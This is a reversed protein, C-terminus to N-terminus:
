WCLQALFRTQSSQSCLANLLPSWRDSSRLLVATSDLLAVVILVFTLVVILSTFNSALLLTRVLDLGCLIMFVAPVVSPM